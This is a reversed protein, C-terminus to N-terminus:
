PCPTFNSRESCTADGLTGQEAGDAATISYGFGQGPLPREGDVLQTDNRAPDLDDRCTAFHAYSLDSLPDRYVHYTGAHGAPGTWTLTIENLWALGTVEGPVLALNRHEYPGLDQSALGDGDWDRQRPGGELDFCPVGTFSAPAPGRDLLPSTAQLHFDLPGVFLPDASLNNNVASCDPTGIDSWSIAACPVGIV